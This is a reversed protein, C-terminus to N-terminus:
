SNAVTVDLTTLTNITLLPTTCLTFRRCTSPYAYTYIPSVIFLFLYVHTPRTHFAATPFCPHSVSMHETTILFLFLLEYCNTCSVTNLQTFGLLVHKLKWMNPLVEEIWHGTVAFYGNANSAQWADCTLSVEG